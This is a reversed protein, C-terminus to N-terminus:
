LLWKEGKISVMNKLQNIRLIAAHRILNVSKKELDVPRDNERRLVKLIDRAELCPGIGNGIPESGDTILVRIKKKLRKGIEEFKRKLAVAENRSKVKASKGVPIDIIIHTSSVSEKKAIISALLQSEADISLPREVRIIRDDAPALNLAGGWVICANTKEVIRKMKKIGFSVHALVEMTDATGAPSTISRSSTKPITFGAAAVIPVIIMTTRNGSLGGICHKDIIPYRDLRLIDGHMAIAKTLLITENISLANNYCAAVFYTLEIDSLKNHVIDWVIQNIEKKSLTHGDLKKKIFELSLPKKAPSIGVEDGDKLNLSKLVEEFVGICGPSILKENEAIDVAATEVRGCRRIKIRDMNHLDIKLADNVNIIAVLPGGTGIDIDKVKLKM